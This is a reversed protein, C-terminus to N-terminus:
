TFYNQVFLVGFLTFLTLVGWFILNLIFNTKSDRSFKGVYLNLATLGIAYLIGLIVTILVSKGVNGSKVSTIFEQTKSPMATGNLEIPEEGVEEGVGLLNTTVFNVINEVFNEKTVIEVEIPIRRDKCYNSSIILEADLSADSLYLDDYSIEISNSGESLVTLSEPSVSLKQLFQGDGGLLRFDFDPKFDFDENNQIILEQDLSDRDIIITSESYAINCLFKGEVPEGSGGGGSTIIVPPLDESHTDVTYQLDFEYYSDGLLPSFSLTAIQSFANDILSYNEVDNALDDVLSSNYSTKDTWETLSNYDIEHIITNNPNILANTFFNYRAGGPGSFSYTIISGESSSIIDDGSSYVVKADHTLNYQSTSGNSIESVNVVIPNEDAFEISNWTTGNYKTVNSSNEILSNDSYILNFNPLNYGLDNTINLLKWVPHPTNVYYTNNLSNLVTYNSESILSYNEEYNIPNTGNTLNITVITEGIASSWNINNFNSGYDYTLNYNKYFYQQYRTSNQNTLNWTLDVFDEVVSNFSNGQVVESHDYVKPLFLQTSSNLETSIGITCVGSSYSGITEIGDIDVVCVYDSSSDVDSINFTITLDQDGELLDNIIISENSITPATNGDIIYTSSNIYESIVLKLNYGGGTANYYCGQWTQSGIITSNYTPDDTNCDSDYSLNLGTSGVTVNNFTSTNLFVSRDYLDLNWDYNSNFTINQVEDGSTRRTITSTVEDITAEATGNIHFELGWNDGTVFQFYDSEDNSPHDNLVQDWSSLRDQSTNLGRYMYLGSNGTYTGDSDLYYFELEYWGSPEYYETPIDQCKWTKVFASLDTDVVDFYRSLNDNIVYHMYGEDNVGDDNDYYYACLEMDSIALNNEFEVTRSTTNVSVIGNEFRRTIIDGSETYDEEVQNGIDPYKYLNWVYDDDAGTYEFTPQNYSVHALDGYLVKTQMFCYYSKEYDTIKGFVQALVPVNHTKHYEAREKELAIDEYSYTPDNATGDWRACASERMTYDGLNAYDQYSTYTNLILERNKTIKSYDSLEVLADGFLGDVDNVEAIDLGDLFINVDDTIDTWVDISDKEDDLWQDRDWSTCNVGPTCGVPVNNNGYTNVSFYGFVKTKNCLDQVWAPNSHDGIVLIDYRGLDSIAEFGNTGYWVYFDMENYSPDTLFIRGDDPNASSSAFLFANETAGGYTVNAPYNTLSEGLLFIQDNENVSLKSLDTFYLIESSFAPITINFNRDTNLEIVFKDTLDYIDKGSTAVKSTIEFTQETSQNNAIILDNNILEAINSGYTTSSNIDARLQSLIDVQWDMAYSKFDNTLNYYFRSKDDTTRLLNMEQDIYDTRNNSSIYYYPDVKSYINDLDSHNYNKLYIPFYNSTNVFMQESINNIYESNTSNETADINLKLMLIGNLYDPGILDNYYTDVNSITRSYNSLNDDFTIILVESNNKAEGIVSLVDSWNNEILSNNIHIEIGYFGYNEILNSIETYTSFEGTDYVYIRGRLHASGEVILTGSGIVNTFDSQTYTGPAISDGLLKFTSVTVINSNLDLYSSSNDIILTDITLDQSASMKSSGTVNITVESLDEFSSLDGYILTSKGLDYGNNNILIENKDSASFYITGASSDETGFSGDNGSADFTGLYDDFSSNINTLYIAIRGGGGGGGGSVYKGGTASISGSGLLNSTNIFVSGGSSAGNGQLGDSSIDGNVTLNGLIELYIAGGGDIGREKGGSGLDFPLFISGYSPPTERSGSGGYSAGGYNGTHGGPGERNEFGKGTSNIVADAGILMNEGVYISLRNTQSVTNPEHTWTGNLITVNGTINLQSTNGLYTTAFSVTGDYGATQNWNTINTVLDWDLNKTSYNSLLVTSNEHPIIGNLWNESTSALNDAGDGIWISLNQDPLMTSFLSTGITDIGYPTVVCQWEENENIMSDVISNTGNQYLELVQDANLSYNLVIVEDIGGRFYNGYPAKGVMFPVNNTDLSGSELDNDELVGDFYIMQNTGNYVGVVHHWTGDEPLESTTSVVKQSLGISMEFAILDPNNNGTSLGYLTWPNSNVTHSKVAIRSYRKFNTTSVWVSITVEDTISFNNYNTYNIGDDVGDFYFSGSNNFGLDSRWTPCNSCIGEYGNGSLDKLALTSNGEFPLNLLTIPELNGNQANSLWSIRAGQSLNDLDYSCTLSGEQPFIESNSILEVNSVSTNVSLVTLNNSDYTSGMFTSNFPTVSCQWEEGPSTLYPTITNTVENYLDSVQTSDLSKNFFRCDDISGKFFGNPNSTSHVNIAGIYLPHEGDLDSVPHYSPSLTQEVGDVFLRFEDDGELVRRTGVVHHWSDDRLDTTNSWVENESVDDDLNWILRGSDNRVWINYRQGGAGDGGKAIIQGGGDSPTKFWCSLSFDDTNSVYYLSDDGFSLRDDTGDFEFAGNGDRGGTANWTPCNSGSCSADKSNGSFDKLANSSNAEMPVYLRYLPESDVLWSIASNTASDNLDFDCILSESSSNLSFNSVLSLNEITATGNVGIVGLLFFMVIGLFLNILKKM